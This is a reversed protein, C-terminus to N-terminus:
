LTRDSGGDVMIQSGTTKAFTGDVLALAARAVDRSTIETKLLNNTRYQEATMGYAAARDRIIDETWLETDLVLHPHLTNVRIGHEAGELAAVRALQTQGAKAVSYAGAGKGPAIANKSAVFVIDGGGGQMKLWRLGEACAHFAGSLNVDLSREWEESSIEELRRSAPFIGANVVVIDLGGFKKIASEFAATVSERSTVDMVVAHARPEAAVPRIDGVTVQAGQDLFTKAIALGIGGAGGTVLAVKGALPLKKADKKLKNQELVWYEVDFIDSEPLAEYRSLKEAALICKMTHSYIESAIKAASYTTGACVIGVEPIVIVRPWPDLKTLARGARNREFYADYAERYKELLAPLEKATARGTFLPLRKTRIVHDPTLPGRQSFEGAGPHSAFERAAPSEDLHLLAPFSRLRLEKRIEVLWSHVSM